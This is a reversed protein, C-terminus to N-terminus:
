QSGEVPFVVHSIGSVSKGDSAIFAAFREPVILASEMSKSIDSCSSLESILLLMSVVRLDDSMMSWANLRGCGSWVCM